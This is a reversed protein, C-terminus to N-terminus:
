PVYFLDPLTEPEKLLYVQMGLSLATETNAETDDIFLTEEAKLRNQRLVYLFIDADPKRMGLDCSFYTKEFLHNYGYTGYQQQLYGFYYAIHLTNTNSLLFTRYTNRVNKLLSWREEPLTGLMSNWTDDIQEDKIGSVLYKRLRKRFEAPSLKGLEFPKFVEEVGQEYLMEYNENGLAKLGAITTNIHLDTIVGGWDFIINKIEPEAKYRADSLKM